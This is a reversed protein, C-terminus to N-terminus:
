AVESIQPMKQVRILFTIALRRLFPLRCLLDEIVILLRSWYPHAMYFTHSFRSHYNLYHNVYDCEFSAANLVKRAIKPTLPWVTLNNTPYASKAKRLRMWHGVTLRFSNHLTFFALAGELMVRHVNSFVRSRLDPPMHTLVEVSLVMDFTEDRFPLHEADACILHLGEDSYLLLESLASRNLDIGVVIKAGRCVLERSYLGSGCGLDLVTRGILQPWLSPLKRFDQNNSGPVVSTCVPSIM